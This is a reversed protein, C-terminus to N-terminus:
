HYRVTVRKFVRTTRGILVLPLSPFKLIVKGHSTVYVKYILCHSSLSSSRTLSETKKM